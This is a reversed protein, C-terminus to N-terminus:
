RLNVLTQLVQDQTKITQANAQYIRQATIMNVLEADPRRQSKWRAPSCCASTAPSGPAGTCRTARRRPAAWNNGGLPQLGQPNRFNALTSRARGAPTPRQLLAGHHHRRPRDSIGVAAGARLREAEPRTVGFPAGYQSLAPGLDLEMGTTARRRGIASDHGPHGIAV